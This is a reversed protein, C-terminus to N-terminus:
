LKLPARLEDIVHELGTETDTYCWHIWGNCTASGSCLCGIKHISGRQGNWTITGDANVTAREESGKFRIKSGVPLRGNEVFSVFPTRPNPRDVHDANGEDILTMVGAIRAQAIKVYDAERDITIYRRGLRKAVAATTGSGCFPDLVIDGPNSTSVIVRHLLAEPKQTSHARKGDLM